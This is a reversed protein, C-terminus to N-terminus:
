VEVRMADVPKMRAARWTPYIAGVVTLGTGILLAIPLGRGLAMLCSGLTLVSFELVAGVQFVALIYGTIAGILSGVLGIFLSEILFLRVVFFDLAGLCKLTGIERIRETVSMLITNTIGVLCLIASLSMLWVREDHQKKLSAADHTLVGAKELAAKTHIDESQMLTRTIDQSVLSSMFFAVVVAICLFTLLSRGKRHQVNSWCMSLTRKWPLVVQQCKRGERKAAFIREKSPRETM